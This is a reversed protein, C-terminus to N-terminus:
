PIGLAANVALLSVPTVGSVTWNVSVEVPFELLQAQSKLLSPITSEVSCFGTWVKSFPPAYM